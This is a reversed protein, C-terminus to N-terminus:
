CMTRFHGRKNCGYCVDGQQAFMEKTFKAVTPVNLDEQLPTAKALSQHQITLHVVEVMVM